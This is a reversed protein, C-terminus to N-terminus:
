GLYKKKIKKANEKLSLFQVIYSHHAWEICM